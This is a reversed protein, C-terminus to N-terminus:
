QPTFEDDKLIIYLNRITKFSLYLEKRKMCFERIYFTCFEPRFHTEPANRDLGIELKKLIEWLGGILKILFFAM